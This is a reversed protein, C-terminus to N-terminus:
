AGPPTDLAEWGLPMLYELPQFRQKYAMKPSGNVWYGLYLYPLGRQRARRIHDLIMFTGLGRRPEDPDYFSYVMSLGDALVDTLAVSRLPGDGGRSFLGTTGRRRYEIVLTEVHTDEIMMTYDTFSMDMMGGDSHRSELYHRFLDFQEATAMPPLTGGVLDANRALTRLNSKSTIFDDVRVRVSICSRCTECAPRYAINQSRRFGGHSLINNIESAREGLLHTFV